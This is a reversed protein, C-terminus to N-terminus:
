KLVTRAVGLLRASAALSAKAIARQSIDFRVHRGELVLEIAGGERLFKDRDSVTLVGPGLGGIIAPVDKESRSIYLVQCAKPQPPRRLRQAALRRGNVVEAEILQDLVTGFPDDGLICISLPSSADQFAAPPWEVFKTFNLLFAAKVQYEGAAGATQAPSKAAMGGLLCLLLVGRPPLVAIRGCQGARNVQGM